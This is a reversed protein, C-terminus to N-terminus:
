ERLRRLSSLDCFNYNNEASPKVHFDYFQKRQEASKWNNKKWDFVVDATSERSGETRGLRHSTGFVRGIHTMCVMENNPGDVEAPEEAM